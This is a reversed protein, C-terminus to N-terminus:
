AAGARASRRARSSPPRRRCSRGPSRSPPVCSGSSGPVSPRRNPPDPCRSPAASPGSVATDAPPAPRPLRPEGRGARAGGPVGGGSGPGIDREPLRGSVRSTQGPANKVESRLECEKCNVHQPAKRLTKVPVSMSWRDTTEDHRNKQAGRAASPDEEFASEHCLTRADFADGVDNREDIPQSLDGAPRLDDPKEHEAPQEEVGIRVGRQAGTQPRHRGLHLRVLVCTEIRVAVAGARAIMKLGTPPQSAVRIPRTGGSSM